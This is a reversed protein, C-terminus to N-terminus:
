RNNPLNQCIIEMLNQHINSVNGNPWVTMLGREGHKLVIMQNHLKALGAAQQVALIPDVLSSIKRLSNQRGRGKHPTYIDIFM